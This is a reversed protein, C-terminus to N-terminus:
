AWFFHIAFQGGYQAATAGSTPDVIAFLFPALIVPLVLLVLLVGVVLLLLQVFEDLIIYSIFLVKSISIMILPVLSLKCM